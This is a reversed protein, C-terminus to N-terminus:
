NDTFSLCVLTEWVQKCVDQFRLLESPSVILLVRSTGRRPHWFLRLRLSFITPKGRILRYGAANGNYSMPAGAFVPVNRRLSHRYYTTISLHSPERSHRNIPFLYRQKKQNGVSLGLAATHCLSQVVVVINRGENREVVTNSEGCPSM